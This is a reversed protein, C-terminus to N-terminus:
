YAGSDDTILHITIPDNYRTGKPSLAKFTVSADIQGANETFEFDSITCYPLEVIMQYPVDTSIDEPSQFYFSIGALAGTVVKARELVSNSDLRLQVTGTIDLKGRQHYLRSISGQGYGEPNHNNKILLSMSRIFTYETGDITFSGDHFIMPGIDELVLASATPSATESMGLIEADGEVMGKLTAAMSLSEVVCGDHLYRDQFGDSQISYTPRETGATFNATFTHRYATTTGTMNIYAWVNKGQLETAVANAATTNDPGFVKEADYNTFAAIEAVATVVGAVSTLDYLGTTNFDTDAAESALNGVSATLDDGSVTIKASDESGTYRIRMMAAASTPTGETGLLSKLIQGMAGSARLTLPLTGGVNDAVAYEGSDMGLGVIAPDIDREVMKRLTPIARLPLAYERAVASGATTEAGGITLLIDNLAPM